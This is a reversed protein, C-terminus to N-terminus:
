IIIVDQRDRAVCVGNKVVYAEVFHPGIFATPELQKWKRGSEEIQGRITDLEQAKNGRNLVKWYIRHPEPVNCVEVQFQIKRGRRVKNGRDHLYYAGMGGLKSVRGSIRFRYRVDIALPIGVDRVLDQETNHYPVPLTTSLRVLETAQKTVPKKFGSGFVRQWKSISSELDTDIWADDIWDAYRIMATRFATYGEQNWRDSLNEGTGSPDSITPLTLRPELYAKLSNMVSRLTTPVDSYCGPDSLEAADDVREGLLVNLVISKVDFTTKFDRLYKLLRIVPVLNRSASKNRENLWANYGEPDTLEFTNEHRNTVWKLGHRDLFPVVDIHFDGAYNITVCRTRRSAKDKYIGSARFCQWLNEVYDAAEWEPFEEVYLLLDADFDDSQRVPQIITKHAYSGQPIVDIFNDTFTSSGELFGTIAEVHDNLRALRASDLNVETELFAKFYDLLKM